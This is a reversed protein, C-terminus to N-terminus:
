QAMSGLLAHPCERNGVPSRALADVLPKPQTEHDGCEFASEFVLARQCTIMIIYTLGDMLPKGPGSPPDLTSPTCPEYCQNSFCTMIVLSLHFRHGIAMPRAPM